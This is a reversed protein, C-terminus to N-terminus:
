VLSIIMVLMVISMTWVVQMKIVLVRLFWKEQLPWDNHVSECIAEDNAFSVQECVDPINQLTQALEDPNIDVRPIDHDDHIDPALDNQEDGVNDFKASRPVVLTGNFNETDNVFDCLNRKIM